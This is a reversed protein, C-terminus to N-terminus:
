EMKREVYIRDLVIYRIIEIEEKIFWSKIKFVIKFVICSVSSREIDVKLYVFEKDVM